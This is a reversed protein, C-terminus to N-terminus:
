TASESERQHRRFRAFSLFALAALIVLYFTHLLLKWVFNNAEDGAVQNQMLGSSILYIPLLESLALLVLVISLALYLYKRM